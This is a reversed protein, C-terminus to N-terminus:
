YTVSNPHNVFKIRGLKPRGELFCYKLVYNGHKLWVKICVGCFGYVCWLFWLVVGLIGIKEINILILFFLFREFRILFVLFGGM